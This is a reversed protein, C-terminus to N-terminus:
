EKHAHPALAMALDAYVDAIASSLRAGAYAMTWDPMTAFVENSEEYMELAKRAFLHALEERFNFILRITVKITSM